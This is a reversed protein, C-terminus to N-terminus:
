KENKKNQAVDHPAGSGVRNEPIVGTLNQPVMYSAQPISSLDAVHFALVKGATSKTWGM